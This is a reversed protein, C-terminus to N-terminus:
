SDGRRAAGDPLLGAHPPLDPLLPRSRRLRHPAGGHHRRSPHLGRAGRAAPAVAPLHPHARRRRARLPGSPPGSQRRHQAFEGELPSRLAELLCAVRRDLARRPAAFWASAERGLGELVDGRFLSARHAAVASCLRAAVPGGLVYAGGRQRAEAAVQPCLEPDYLMGVTPGRSGATHPLDPPVVVVRGRACAGGPESVAVDGDLGVFIGAGHQAHLTSSTAISARVAFSEAIVGGIRSENLREM